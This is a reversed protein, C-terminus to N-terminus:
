PHGASRNSRHSPSRSCVWNSLAASASRLGARLGHRGTRNDGRAPRPQIPVGRLWLRIGQWRILASTRVTLLPWRILARVATGTTLPRGSGTLTAVFPTAGNQHLTVTVSLREGPMPTRITYSGGMPLFPSVYFQKDVDAAGRDDPRLLYVHRGRYTNHVEAIVAVLSEDTGDTGDTGDTRLCYFVSLPNFVHGLTRPCTLLLIRDATLRQEALAARVNEAISASPDGLHDRAEFRVLRRLWGPLTVPHDLDVLWMGTRYCFRRDLGAPAAATRRHITTARYIRPRVADAVRGATRRPWGNTSTPTSTPISTPTSTPISVTM